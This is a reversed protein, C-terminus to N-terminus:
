FTERKSSTFLKYLRASFIIADDIMPDRDGAQVYCPPFLALLDDSAYMPSLYLDRGPNINNLRHDGVYFKGMEFLFEPPVIPDNLFRLRSTFPTAKSANDIVSNVNISPIGVDSASDDDPNESIVVDDERIPTSPCLKGNRAIISRYDHHIWGQVDFNLFPYILVMGSPVRCYEAEIIVKLVLSTILNGGASDGMLIITILETEDETGSEVDEERSVATNIGLVKGNSLFVACYADFIENLAHPYPYEPAKKYNISFIPVRTKKAIYSIPELHHDPTMSVFGGGPVHFLLKKQRSLEEMTGDFFITGEVFTGAADGIPISCANHGRVHRPIKIPIKLGVRPITMKTLMNLFPHMNKEWSYRILKISVQARFRKIVEEAHDPYLLFYISFVIAL